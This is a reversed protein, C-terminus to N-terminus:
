PQRLMVNLPWRCVQTLGCPNARCVIVRVFHRTAQGGISGPRMVRIHAGAEGRTYRFRTCRFREGGRYRGSEGGFCCYTGSGGENGSGGRVVGFRRVAGFRGSQFVCSMHSV